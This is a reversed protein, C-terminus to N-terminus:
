HGPKQVGTGHGDGGGVMDALDLGEGSLKAMDTRLNSLNKTLKAKEEAIRKSENLDVERDDRKVGAFVSWLSYYEAQTIPDLKHDHCRACNITISMTSTIVQTVMDDLDGARAARRLMESRTEAQGVFDWPGAALFGTAIVSQPDNPAIVDGAIQERIFQDYPKDNNLSDIVYDRYRWANPRLKDREFGHTDAYHAIDLWHRAGASAM